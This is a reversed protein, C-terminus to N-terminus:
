TIDKNCIQEYDERKRENLERKKTLVLCRMGIVQEEKRM